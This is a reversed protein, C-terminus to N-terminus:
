PYPAGRYRCTSVRETGVRREESRPTPMKIEVVECCARQPARNGLALPLQAIYQADVFRAAFDEQERRPDGLIFIGVDHLRADCGEGTAEFNQGICRALM